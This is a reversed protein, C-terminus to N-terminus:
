GTGGQECRSEQRDDCRPGAEGDGRDGTADPVPQVCAHAAVLAEAGLILSQLTGKGGLTKGVEAGTSRGVMHLTKSHSGREGTPTLPTFAQTERRDRIPRMKNALGTSDSGDLIPFQDSRVIDLQHHKLPHPDEVHDGIPAFPGM